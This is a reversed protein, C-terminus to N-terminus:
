DQATPALKQPVSFLFIAVLGSYRQGSPAPTPLSAGRALTPFREVKTANAKVEALKNATRERTADFSKNTAQIM